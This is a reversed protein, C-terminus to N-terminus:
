NEKYFYLPVENGSNSSDYYNGDIVAIVHTGTGLIFKGVPHDICFDAVTYCDPCTNPISHRSYGLKRLLARFVENSKPMDYVIEGTLCLLRYADIWAINKIACLSRVTCDEVYKGAPNPNFYVWAMDIGKM